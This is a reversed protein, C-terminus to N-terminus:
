FDDFLTLIMKSVKRAAGSKQGRKPPESLEAILKHTIANAAVPSVRGGETQQGVGLDCLWFFGHHIGHGQPFGPFPIIYVM